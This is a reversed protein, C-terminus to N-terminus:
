SLGLRKRRDQSEQSLQDRIVRSKRAAERGEEVDGRELLLDRRREWYRARVHRRQRDKAELASWLRPQGRDSTHAAAALRVRELDELSYLYVPLDGFHTMFSPNYTEPDDRRWSRLTDEPVKLARAVEALTMWPGGELERVFKTVPSIRGAQAM